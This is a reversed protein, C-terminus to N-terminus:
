RIKSEYNEDPSKLDHLKRRCFFAIVPKLGGVMRATVILAMSGWFFFPMKFAEDVHVCYPKKKALLVMNM